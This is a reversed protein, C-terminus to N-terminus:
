HADARKRDLSSSAFTDVAVRVPCVCTSKDYALWESVKGKMSGEEQTRTMELKFGFNNKKIILLVQKLFPVM